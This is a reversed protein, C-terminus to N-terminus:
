NGKKFFLSDKLPNTITRVQYSTLLNNFYQINGIQITDGIFKIPSYLKASATSPLSTALTNKIKYTTILKKNKYVEVFKGSLILTIQFSKNIPINAIPDLLELFKKGTSDTTIVGVQLDNKASNAYVIFNTKTFTDIISTTSEDLLRPVEADSTGKYEVFSGNQSISVPASDFYLLVRPVATSKYTGNLFCDFSLSFGEYKFMQIDAFVLATDSAAPVGTSLTQFRVSPLAEMEKNPMPIFPLIPSVSYHYIVLGIFIVLSILSVFFLLGSADKTIRLVEM